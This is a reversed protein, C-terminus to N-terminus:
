LTGAEATMTVSATDLVKGTVVLRISVTGQAFATGPANVQFQWQGGTTGPIWTNVPSGDPVDGNNLDFRIEFDEPEGTILWDGIPAYPGGEATETAGTNLMRYGVFAQTVDLDNLNAGRADVRKKTVSQPVASLVTFM